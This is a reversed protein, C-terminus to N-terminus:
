GASCNLNKRQTEPYSDAQSNTSDRSMEKQSQVNSKLISFKTQEEGFLNRSNTYIIFMASHQVPSVPSSDQPMKLSGNCGILMVNIKQINENETIDKM